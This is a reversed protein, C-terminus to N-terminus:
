SASLARDVLGGLFRQTLTEYRPNLHQRVMRAYPHLSRRLYELIGERRIDDLNNLYYEFLHTSGLEMGTKVAGLAILSSTVFVSKGEQLAITNLEEYMSSLTEMKPLYEANDQLQNFSERLQDVSTPPMDVLDAGQGSFRELTELLDDVSDVTADQPLVGETKLDTVLTQLYHRTGGSIDAAAALLWVPSWGMAFFSLVEMANGAAKRVALEEVPLDDAPFVDQVGGVLEVIIRLLREFTAQYFRSDRAWDPVVFEAVRHALGGLGAAAARALREPLSVIYVLTDM